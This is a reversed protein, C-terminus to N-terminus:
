RNGRREEWPPEAPGEEEAWLGANAAKAAQQIERLSRDRAYRGYYWAAGRRVMERNVDIVRGDTEVYLRAVMRGYRDREYARFYVEGRHLLGDLEETAAIGYPQHKEPADIDTLRVKEVQGDPLRLRVTDGDHVNVVVAARANAPLDAPPLERAPPSDSAVPAEVASPTGGVWGLWAHISPRQGLLLGFVLGFVLGALVSGLLWGWPPRGPPRGAPLRSSKDLRRQPAGM